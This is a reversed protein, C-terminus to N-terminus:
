LALRGIFGRDLNGLYLFGGVEEASTVQPVVEGTPDQLSRRVRGDESVALALGYAAPRPWFLRPLKALQRKLFVSPHLRDMRPNRVTFLAVWFTGRRNSSVGDPFGPLNDLFIESEGARPGRLWYRVTRYRYTENVLVFDEDRSLAVGNAFYLDSLLVQTQGSAPDYRLLRGHPRAELLDYLYHEPGHRGSADSFYVSGDAAVDLDDTFGFPLGGAGTALTTVAGAADVALLGRVGDAVLLRGSADFALGLPRGGTVAFTELTAGAENVTLRVIEGDATGAYIRGEGDVAVDEPGHVRGDALREAARLAENVALAGDMAPPAPPEYAQPDIPGGAALFLAALGVAAAAM